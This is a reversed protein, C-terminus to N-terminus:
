VEDIAARLKEELSDPYELAENKRRDMNAIADARTLVRRCREASAIDIMRGDVNVSATGKKMGEEFAELARKMYAVEEPPISFGENLYQIPAPHISQAGKYGLKRSNVAAEYVKEPERWTFPEVGVLGMPQVGAAYADTLVKSRAYWLERGEVTTQVGMEQTLDEAGVGITVIRPSASAIEFARVVGLATEVAVAMQVTGEAIGRSRELDAIIGDRIRVEEASEVKPLAVCALGPWVSAELDETAQEIPRNIRVAVDGGGKGVVPICDRILGSAAEKEGDPVSDELDMVICDAGRLYAKDVFRQVNVPFILSSRRVLREIDTRHPLTSDMYLSNITNQM